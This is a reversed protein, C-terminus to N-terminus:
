ILEAVFDKNKYYYQRLTNVINERSEVDEVSANVYSCAMTVFCVLVKYLEIKDSIEEFQAYNNREIGDYFTENSEVLFGIRRRLYLVTTMFKILLPMKNGTNVDPESLYDEIFTYKDMAEFVMKHMEEVNSNNM